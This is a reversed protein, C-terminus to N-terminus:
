KFKQQNGSQSQILAVLAVWLGLNVHGIPFQLRWLVQTTGCSLNISLASWVTGSPAGTGKHRAGSAADISLMPSRSPTTTLLMWPDKEAAQNVGVLGAAAESRCYSAHCSLILFIIYIFDPLIPRLASRNCAVRHPNLLNLVSIFAIMPWFAASVVCSARSEANLVTATATTSM